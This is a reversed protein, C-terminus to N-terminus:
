ETRRVVIHHSGSGAGENRVVQLRAATLVAAIQEPRRRYRRMYRRRVRPLLRDPLRQIMEVAANNTRSDFQLFARGEPKLVRGIERVLKLLIEDDPIHQFVLLAIALDIEGDPIAALDSGSTLALHVNDPLPALRAADLMEPAIDVGEVREFEAALAPLLRGPGCGLDLARERGVSGVFALIGAVDRAGSRYFAERDDVDVGVVAARLADSRAFARWHERLNDLRAAEPTKSWESM